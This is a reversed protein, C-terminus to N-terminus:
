LSHFVTCYRAPVSLHSSVPIGASTLAEYLLPTEKDMVVSMDWDRYIGLERQGLKVLSRRRQVLHGLFLNLFGQSIHYLWSAYEVGLQAICGASFLVDASKLYEDREHARRALIMIPSNGSESSIDDSITDILSKACTQLLCRLGEPWQLCYVISTCGAIRDLPGDPDGEIATMLQKKSKMIIARAIPNIDVTLSPFCHHIPAIHHYGGLKRILDEESMVGSREKSWFIMPEQVAWEQTGYQIEQRDAIYCLLFFLRRM